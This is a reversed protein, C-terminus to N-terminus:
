VVGIGDTPFADQATPISTETFRDMRRDRNGPVGVPRASLVELPPLVASSRGSAHRSRSSRSFTPVTIPSNANVIQGPFMTVDNASICAATNHLVSNHTMACLLLICSRGPPTSCVLVCRRPSTASLMLYVLTHQWWQYMMTRPLCTYISMTLLCNWGSCDHARIADNRQASVLRWRIWASRSRLM